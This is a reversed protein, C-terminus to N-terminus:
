ALATNTHKTHVTSACANNRYKTYPSLPSGGLSAQRGIRDRRLGGSFDLQGFRDSELPSKEFYVGGFGALAILLATRDGRM